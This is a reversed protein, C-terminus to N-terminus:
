GNWKFPLSTYNLWNDNRAMPSGKREQKDINNVESPGKLIGKTGTTRHITSTWELQRNKYSKIVFKLPQLKKAGRRKNLYIAWMADFEEEEEEEERVFWNGASKHVEAVFTIGKHHNRTVRQRKIALSRGHSSWAVWLEEYILHKKDQNLYHYWQWQMSWWRLGM